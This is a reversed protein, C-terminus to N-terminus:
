SSYKHLSFFVCCSCLWFYCCCASFWLRRFCISFLSFNDYLGRFGNLHPVNFISSFTASFHLLIPVIAFPVSSFRIELPHFTCATFPTSSFTCRPSYFLSLSLSLSLVKMRQIWIFHLLLILTNYIKNRRRLLPLSCVCVCVSMSSWAFIIFHISHFCLLSVTFGISNSLVFYEWLLLFQFMSSCILAFRRNEPLLLLFNSPPLFNICLLANKRMCVWSIHSKICWFFFFRGFCCVSM